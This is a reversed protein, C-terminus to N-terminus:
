AVADSVRLSPDLLSIQRASRKPCAAGATGDPDVPHQEHHHVAPSQSMCVGIACGLFFRWVDPHQLWIWGFRLVMSQPPPPMVARRSTSPFNTLVTRQNSPVDAVLSSRSSRCARPRPPPSASRRVFTPVVSVTSTAASRIPAPADGVLCCCGHLNSYWGGAASAWM